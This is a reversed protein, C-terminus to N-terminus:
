VPHRRSFVRPHHDSVWLNNGPKQKHCQRIVCIVRWRCLFCVMCALRIAFISKASLLGSIRPTTAM